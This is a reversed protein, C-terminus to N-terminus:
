PLAAGCSVIQWGPPLTADSRLKSTAMRSLFTADSSRPKGTTM